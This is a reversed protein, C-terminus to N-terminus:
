RMMVMGKTRREAVVEFGREDDDEEEEKWEEMGKRLRGRFGNVESDAM